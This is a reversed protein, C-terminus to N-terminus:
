CRVKKTVSRNNSVDLLGYRSIWHITFDDIASENKMSEYINKEGSNNENLSIFCFLCDNLVRKRTMTCSQITFLTKKIWRM